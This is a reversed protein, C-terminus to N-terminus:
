DMGRRRVVPCCDVLFPASAIKARSARLSSSSACLAASPPSLCLVVGHSGGSRRGEESWMKWRPRPLFLFPYSAPDTSLDPVRSSMKRLSSSFPLHPTKQMADDKNEGGEDPLDSHISKTKCPVGCSTPETRWATCGGGGEGEGRM